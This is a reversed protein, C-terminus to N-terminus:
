QKTQIADSFPLTLLTQGAEDAVEIVAERGLDSIEGLLERAVTLAEALAADMDPLEMGDPDRELKDGNRIHFYYLPMM